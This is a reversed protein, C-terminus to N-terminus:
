DARVISVVVGPPGVTATRGDVGHAFPRLVRDLPTVSTVKDSSLPPVWSSAPLCGCDAQKVDGVLIESVRMGLVMM